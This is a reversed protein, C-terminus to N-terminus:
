VISCHTSAATTSPQSFRPDHLSGYVPATCLLRVCQERTLFQSEFSAQKRKNTHPIVHDEYVYSGYTEANVMSLTWQWVMLTEAAKVDSHVNTGDRIPKTQGYMPADTIGVETPRSDYGITKSPSPTHLVAIVVHMAPRLEDKAQTNRSQDNSSEQNSPSPSVDM